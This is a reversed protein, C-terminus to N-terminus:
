IADPETSPQIDELNLPLCSNIYEEVHSVLSFYFNTSIAQQFYENDRFYQFEPRVTREFRHFENVWSRFKM